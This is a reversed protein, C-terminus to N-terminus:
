HLVKALDEASPLRAISVRPVFQSASKMKRWWESKKSKFTSSSDGELPNVKPMVQSLIAMACLFFAPMACQFYTYQESSTWLLQNSKLAEKRNLM